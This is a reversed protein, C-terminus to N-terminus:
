RGEPKSKRFEERGTGPSIIDSDADIELINSLIKRKQDLVHNEGEPSGLLPGDQSLERGLSSEKISPLGGISSCSNGSSGLSHNETGGGSPFNFSLLLHYL